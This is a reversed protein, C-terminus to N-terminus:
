IMYPLHANDIEDVLLATKALPMSLNNYCTNNCKFLIGVSIAIKTLSYFGKVFLESLVISFGGSEM